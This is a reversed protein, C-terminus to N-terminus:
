SILISNAKKQIAITLTFTTAFLEELQKKYAELAEKIHEPNYEYTTIFAGNEEIVAECWEGLFNEIVDFFDSTTVRMEYYFENM